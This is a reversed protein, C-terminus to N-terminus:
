DPESKKQLTEVFKQHEPSSIGKELVEFLRQRDGRVLADPDLWLGPFVKSKYLGDKTLPLRKFKGGRLVFWDVARDQVRWVVYERVGNREYARLKDHLDYSASSASVESALDPGGLLYGDDGIRCQGGVIRLSGDPQPCNLGHDLLVTPNDSGKVGPTAFQYIGLWAVFDFHPDAHEDCSVPSGMYVVGEILEAKKVEPMAQYRRLFEEVSLRDGARLPPVTKLRQASLM